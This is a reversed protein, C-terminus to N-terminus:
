LRGMFNLDCGARGKTLGISGGAGAITDALGSKIGEASVPQTPKAPNTSPKSQNFLNPGTYWSARYQSPRITIAKVAPGIITQSEIKSRFGFAPGMSPM